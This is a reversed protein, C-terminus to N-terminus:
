DGIEQECTFPRFSGDPQGGPHRNASRLESAFGPSRGPHQHRRWTHRVCLGYRLCLGGLSKLAIWCSKRSM